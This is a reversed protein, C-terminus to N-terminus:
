GATWRNCRAVPQVPNHIVRRSVPRAMRPIKLGHRVGSENVQADMGGIRQELARDLNGIQDRQALAVGHRRHRDGVAAVQEARELERERGDLRPHLRDDAAPDAEGPLVVLGEAARGGARRRVPDREQDLVLGTVAVQHLQDGPREQFGRGALRGLDREGVQLGEARPKDREAASRGPGHAPAQQVALVLGGLRGQAPERPDEGPPEVDLNHAVAQGLLRADLVPQHIQGVREVQRQDRGVLDEEGLRLHVLRVVREQADGFPGVDALGLAPAQRGLVAELRGGLHGLEEGVQGLGDGVGQGDRAAASVHGLGDVRDQRGERGLGAAALGLLQARPALGTQFPAQLFLDERGGHVLRRALRRRAAVPLAHFVLERDDLLHAVRTIEQDDGIEDLPGLALANRDTGSAARARARHHGPREGDGTEIGQAPAQQELAEEVGLAHGHRVEVDVEALLAPVLDDAVDLLFVAAIM